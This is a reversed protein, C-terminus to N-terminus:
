WIYDKSIDTYCKRNRIFWVLKKIKQKETDTNEINLNKRIDKLSYGKELMECISRIYADDNHRLTNKKQINFDKSISKWKKGTRIGTILHKHYSDNPFNLKCIIEKNGYGQELLECIKRVTKNNAKANPSKDGHMCHGHEINWDNNMKYTTWELNSIDNNSRDFDKHNPVLKQDLKLLDEPIDVFYTAVLVHVGIHVTKNDNTRLSYYKYGNNATWPQLIKNTKTNKVEGKKNIKYRGTRANKMDITKWM